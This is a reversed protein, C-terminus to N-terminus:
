FARLTRNAAAVLPTTLRSVKFFSRIEDPSLNAAHHGLGNAAVPPL